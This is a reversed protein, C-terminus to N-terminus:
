CRFPILKGDDTLCTSNNSRNSKNSQDSYTSNQTDSSTESESEGESAEEDTDVGEEIEVCCVNKLSFHKCYLNYIFEIEIYKLALNFKTGTQRYTWM